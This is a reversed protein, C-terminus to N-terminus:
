RAPYMGHHFISRASDPLGNSEVLSLWLASRREGLKEVERGFLVPDMPVPDNARVTIEMTYRSLLGIIDVSLQDGKRSQEETWILERDGFTTSSAMTLMMRYSDQVELLTRFEAELLAKHLDRDENAARPGATRGSDPTATSQCASLGALAAIICLHRIM